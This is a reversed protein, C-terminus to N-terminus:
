RSLIAQVMSVTNRPGTVRATVRYYVATSATFAVGGAKKSGGGLPADVFCKGQIDTVPGPGQCLRDIVIQVKTATATSDVAVPM